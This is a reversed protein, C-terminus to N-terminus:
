LKYIIETYVDGFFSLFQLTLSALLLIVAWIVIMMLISLFAVGATQLITYDNMYKLAVFILILVWLLSVYKFLFYAGAQEFSLINSLVGLAPTLIIYPVLCWAYGTVLETFKSEGNIISTILYSAVTWTLLPVFIMAFELAINADVPKKSSLPFHVMFIYLYNVAVALVYLVIVPIPRFKVRERKIIDFADIPHFLILLAKNLFSVKNM